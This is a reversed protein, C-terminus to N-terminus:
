RSNAPIVTSNLGVFVPTFCDKRLLRQHKTRSVPNDNVAARSHGNDTVLGGNQNVIDGSNVTIFQNQEDFIGTIEGILFETASSSEPGGPL